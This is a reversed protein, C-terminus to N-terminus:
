IPDVDPLNANLLRFGLSGVSKDRGQWFLGVCSWFPALVCRPTAGRVSLNSKFLLISFLLLITTDYYITYVNKIPIVVKYRSPSSVNFWYLAKEKSHNRGEGKNTTMMRPPEMIRLPQMVGANTILIVKRRKYGICREWWYENSNNLYSVHRNM